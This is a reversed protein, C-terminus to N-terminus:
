HNDKRTFALLKKVYLKSIEVDAIAYDGNYIVKLVKGKQYLFSFSPWRDYPIYLKLSVINQALMETIMKRLREINEGNEASVFISPKYDRKMKGRLFNLEDVTLLDTKNFVFIKPKGAIEMKHLIEEVSAILEEFDSRSIDVVHLLLDAEQIEELTASFANMLQRPLNRIFGVTDSLLIMEEENDKDKLDRVPILPLLFSIKLLFRHAPLFM